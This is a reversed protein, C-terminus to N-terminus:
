VVCRVDGRHACGFRGRVRRVRQSSFVDATTAEVARCEEVTANRALMERRDRRNMVRPRDHVGTEHEAVPWLAAIAEDDTGPQVLPKRVPPGNTVFLPGYFGGGPADPDTAARFQSLAGRGISM